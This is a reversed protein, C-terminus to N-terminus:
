NRATFDLLKSPFKRALRLYYKLFDVDSFAEKIKRVLFKHNFISKYFDKVVEKLENDSMKTRLVPERMDYRSWDETRLWGHLKAESYLPTGPYPVVITAQISDALDNMFIHKALKLTELVDSKNEWPYGVMVTLHPSLGAEKAWSLSKLICEIDLNKNIHDLTKKNASELGYLVFRFGAKGMLLYDKRSLGSNFRMNCDFKIREHLNREILGLCFENLWDGVPFTGSDDMIERVKLTDVLFKVEDLARKPRMVRYCNGPYLTTWSCFSCKGWWCDRGFMTYTGPTRLYNSNDYAYLQWNTLERDIFPLTNLKHNLVFKGSNKVVKRERYWIGKELKRGKELHDLLNTALFDYDGGTLVFDVKSKEFSEKPLATVHDGVLVIKTKKNKEKLLNIIRWHRKIVPTKTEIILVDANSKWLEEEWSEYTMSENIGDLWVVSHGERRLLTAMSAPVMPYAKWPTTAWQFQRNQGLLPIGKSSELPPYGIVINM